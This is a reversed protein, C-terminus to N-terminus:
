LAVAVLEAVAPQPASSVPWPLWPLLTPARHSSAAHDANPTVQQGTMSRVTAMTAGFITSATMAIILAVAFWLLQQLQCAPRDGLPVRRPPRKPTVTVM